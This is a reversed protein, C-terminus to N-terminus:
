DLYLLTPRTEDLKKLTTVLKTDLFENVAKDDALALDTVMQKTLAARKDVLTQIMDGPTVGAKQPPKVDALAQKVWAVDNPECLATHGAVTVKEYGPPSVGPRREAPADAKVPAAAPAAPAALVFVRMPCQECVAARVHWDPHVAGAGARRVIASAYRAAARSLTVFSSCCGAAM